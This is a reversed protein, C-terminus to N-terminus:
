FNALFTSRRPWIVQGDLLAVNGAKYLCVQQGYSQVNAQPLPEIERTDRWLKRPLTVQSLGRQSSVPAYLHCCYMATTDEHMLADMGKCKRHYWYCNLLHKPLPTFYHNPFTHMSYSNSEHFKGLPMNFKWSKNLMSFGSDFTNFMCPTSAHTYTSM